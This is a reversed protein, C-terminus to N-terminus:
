RKPSPTACAAAPSLLSSSSPRGRPPTGVPTNQSNPNLSPVKYKLTYAWFSFEVVHGIQVRGICATNNGNYGGSRRSMSRTPCSSRSNCSNNNRSSTANHNLFLMAVIATVIATAAAPLGHCAATCSTQAHQARSRQRAVRM